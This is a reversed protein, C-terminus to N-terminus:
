QTFAYISFGAFVIILIFIITSAYEDKENQFSQHKLAQNKIITRSSIEGIKDEKKPLPVRIKQECKPCQVIIIEQSYKNEDVKLVTQCKPCQIKM